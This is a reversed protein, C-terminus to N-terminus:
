AGWKRRDSADPSSLWPETLLLQGSRTIPAPRVRILETSVGHLRTAAAGARTRIALLARPSGPKCRPM